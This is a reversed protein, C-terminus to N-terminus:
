NPQRGAGKIPSNGVKASHLWCRSFADVALPSVTLCVCTSVCVPVAMRARVGARPCALKVRGKGAIGDARLMM